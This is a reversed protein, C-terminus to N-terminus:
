KLAENLWNLVETGQVKWARELAWDPFDGRLEGNWTYSVKTNNNNMRALKWRGGAHILRVYHEREPIVIEDSATFTYSYEQDTKETVFKVIYDRGSFPFPMDLSIHVIDYSLIVADEIRKFVNPYNGKDEIITSIQNIEFPLIKEAKCWQIDDKMTWGIWVDSEQLVNWSEFITPVTIEKSFGVSNFVLQLLFTLKYTVTNM